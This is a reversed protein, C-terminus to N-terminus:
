NRNMDRTTILRDNEVLTYSSVKGDADRRVFLEINRDTVTNYGKIGSNLLGWFSFKQKGIDELPINEKVNREARAFLNDAVKVILPKAEPVPQAAIEKSKKLTVRALNDQEAPILYAPYAHKIRYPNQRLASNYNLATRRVPKEIDNGEDPNSSTIKEAPHLSSIQKDPTEAEVSQTAIQVPNSPTNDEVPTIFYRIGFFLLIVAAISASVWMVRNFTLVPAKKLLLEKNPFYITEDSRLRTKRFAEFEKQFVPNM